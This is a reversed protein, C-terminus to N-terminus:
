HRKVTTTPSPTRPGGVSRARIQTSQPPARLRFRPWASALAPFPLLALVGGLLAAHGEARGAEGAGRAEQGRSATRVGGFLWPPRSVHRWGALRGSPTQVGAAGPRRYPGTGEAWREAQRIPGPGGVRSSRVLTRPTTNEDGLSREPRARLM